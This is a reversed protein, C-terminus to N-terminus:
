RVGTDIDMDVRVTQNSTVRFPQPKARLHGKPLRGQVDLIYDGPPLALRYNGNGDATVRAIEKKGDQSLIILPYEAYNGASFKPPTGEALEVDKFALIRLRGELFGPVANDSALCGAPVLFVCALLLSRLRVVYLFHAPYNRVM